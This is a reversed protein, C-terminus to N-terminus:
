KKVFLALSATYGHVFNKAGVPGLEGNCFFGAVGIPGFAQQVHRADHDGQGFMGRGRGNCSCLCAGYVSRDAIKSGTARLLQEMDETGAAADRRQFQITQGVRPFAGVALVGSNPDVGILNRILFDGRHFDELYENIVLGIFLNGRLKQKEELPLKNLTETLVEYASRNGIEYILNREAKTITWTEGIPTCGQSIVSALAVDGGVSVAICGDEFVQGNMYLQTRQASYDGSAMGGLTPLAPYAENWTNLWQDIQFSFPDGFALWGNTAEPGVGTEMHWYGPGTSEEVQEQTLHFAQLSAGPLHYLGLALGPQEEIESAGAILSAGSCGVFMKARTEIQLIELIEKANEFFKPSMFLLGLNVEQGALKARLAGAWTRLAAEDFERAWHDAVSFVTGM